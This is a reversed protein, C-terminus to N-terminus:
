NLNNVKVSWQHPFTQNKYHNKFYLSMPYLILQFFCKHAYIQKKHINPTIKAYRSAHFTTKPELRQTCFTNRRANSNTGQQYHVFNLPVM